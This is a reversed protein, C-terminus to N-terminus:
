GGGVEIVTRGRVQGKLIRAAEDPVASLPVTRSMEELKDMPLERALRAWAAMRREYPCTASDIGLLNIGRLLFPIVTAEFKIGAANGVSACSGWYCLSALLNGLIAGGVNDIARSWREAGLPGKPPTELESRSVITTAGLGRLYDHQDERGTVAAVRYGLNALLAIAISGVGGAAGTILVDGKNEPRLGHEELAMVALMATFGATGIAMAQRTTMGDPLPVLWDAKVRAKGAYGGWHVEGVRWGTLIVADGPKFKPSDSAEVVGSFDIGPVHPYTRVLKGLGKVVMGDKYNLDSYAVRVQVDGEPLAADDVTQIAASVKGEREELVLAPFGSSAAM